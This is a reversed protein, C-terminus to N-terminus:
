WVCSRPVQSSRSVHAKEILYRCFTDSDPVDGFGQAHAGPGFFASMEPLVYFAGSPEALNVGPISRLRASVYDQPCLAPRFFVNARVSTNRALSLLFQTHTNVAASSPRAPASPSSASPHRPYADQVLGPSGAGGSRRVM